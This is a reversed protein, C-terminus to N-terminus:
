CATRRRAGATGGAATRQLARLAAPRGDPLWWAHLASMAGAAKIHM